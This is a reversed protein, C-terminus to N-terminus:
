VWKFPESPQFRVLMSVNVADRGVTSRGRFIAPTEGALLSRLEEEQQSVTKALMSSM